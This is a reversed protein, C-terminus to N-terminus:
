SENNGAIKDKDLNFTVFARKYDRRKYSVLKQRGFLRRWGGVFNATAVKIVDVEYIKTLYEKVEHKTMKPPVELIAMPPNKKMRVSILRMYMSPFYVKM